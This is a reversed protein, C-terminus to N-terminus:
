YLGPNSENVNYGIKERESIINNWWRLLQPLNGAGTADDALGVQKIGGVNNALNDILTKTGLGYFAMALNDGQTTREQSLLEFGGHIVPRSSNRYTNIM